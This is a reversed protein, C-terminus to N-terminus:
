TYKSKGPSLKINSRIPSDLMNISGEQLHRYREGVINIFSEQNENTNITQKELDFKSRM